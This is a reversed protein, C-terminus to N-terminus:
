NRREGGCDSPVTKSGFQKEEVKNLATTKGNVEGEHSGRKVSPESGRGTAAKEGAQNENAIDRFRERDEGGGKPRARGGLMILGFQIGLTGTPGQRKEKIKPAKRPTKKQWKDRRDMPTTEKSSKLNKCREGEVGAGKGRGEPWKRNPKLTAYVEGAPGGPLPTM